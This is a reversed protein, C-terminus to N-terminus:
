YSRDTLKKDLINEKYCHNSWFMKPTNFYKLAHFIFFINTFLQTTKTLLWGKELFPLSWCKILVILFSVQCFITISKTAFNCLFFTRTCYFALLSWHLKGKPFIFWMYFRGKKRSERSSKWSYKMSNLCSSKHM